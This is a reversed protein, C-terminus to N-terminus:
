SNSNLLTRKIARWFLLPFGSPKGKGRLKRRIATLSRQHCNAETKGRRSKPRPSRPHRRSLESQDRREQGHAAALIFPAFKGAVREVRHYEVGNAPEEFKREGSLTLTGDRVELNFDEKKMGPLEARILYSDTSLVGNGTTM